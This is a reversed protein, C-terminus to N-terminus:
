CTSGRMPAPPTIGIAATWLSLNALGRENVHPRHRRVCHALVSFVSEVTAPWFPIWPVQRAVKGPGFQRRGPLRRRKGLFCCTRTPMFAPTPGTPPRCRFNSNDADAPRTLVSTQQVPPRRHEAAAPGHRAAPPFGSRGGQVFGPVLMVPQGCRLLGAYGRAHHRYLHAAAGQSDLM